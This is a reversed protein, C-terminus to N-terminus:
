HTLHIAKITVWLTYCKVGDGLLMEIGLALHLEKNHKESRAERQLYVAIYLRIERYVSRM